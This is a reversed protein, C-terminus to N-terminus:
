LLGKSNIASSGVKVWWFIHCRLFVRERDLFIWDSKSFGSFILVKEPFDAPTLINSQLSRFYRALSWYERHLFLLERRGWFFWSLSRLNEGLVSYGLILEPFEPQCWFFRILNRLIEALSRFSRSGFLRARSLFINVSGFFRKPCLFNQAWGCYDWGIGWFNIVPTLFYKSAGFLDRRTGFFKAQPLFFRASIRACDCFDSQIGFLEIIAPILFYISLSCIWLYLSERGGWFIQCVEKFVQLNFFATLAWSIRALALFCILNLKSLNRRSCFFSERSLFIEVHDSFRALCPSNQDWGYCDKGIGYFCDSGNSFINQGWSARALNWFM